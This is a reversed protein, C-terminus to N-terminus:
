RKQQREPPYQRLERYSWIDHAISFDNFRIYRHKFSNYLIRKLSLYPPKPAFDDHQTIDTWVGKKKGLTNFTQFLTSETSEGVWQTETLSAPSGRELSSLIVYRKVQYLQLKFQNTVPSRRSNNKRREVNNSFVLSKKTAGATVESAPITIAKDKFAKGM